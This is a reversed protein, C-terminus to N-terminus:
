AGADPWANGFRFVLVVAAGFEPEAVAGAPRWVGGAFKTLGGASLAIAGTPESGPKTPTPLEGPPLTAGAEYWVGTATRACTAFPGPAATSGGAVAADDDGGRGELLAAFGAVVEDDDWSFSCPMGTL